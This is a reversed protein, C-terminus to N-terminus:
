SKKVDAGNEEIDRTPTAAGSSANPLPTGKEAIDRVPTAAGSSANRVPSGKEDGVDVNGKGKKRFLNRYKKQM